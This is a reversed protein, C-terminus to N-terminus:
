KVILRVPFHTKFKPYRDNAFLDDDSAIKDLSQADKIWEKMPELWDNQM